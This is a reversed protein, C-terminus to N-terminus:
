APVACDNTSPYCRVASFRRCLIDIPQHPHRAKIMRVASLSRVVDGIPGYNVVLIPRPTTGGNSSSEETERGHFQM